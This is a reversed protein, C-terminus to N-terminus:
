PTKRPARMNDPTLAGTGFPSKKNIKREINM